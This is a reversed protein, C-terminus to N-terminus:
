ARFRRKGMYVGHFTTSERIYDMAEPTIVYSRAVTGDPNLPKPEDKVFGTDWVYRYGPFITNREVWGRHVGRSQGIWVNQVSRDNRLIEIAYARAAILSGRRAVGISYSGDPYELDIAYETM